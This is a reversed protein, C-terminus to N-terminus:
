PGRELIAGRDPIPVLALKARELGACLWPALPSTPDDLETLAAALHDELELGGRKKELAERIGAGLLSRLTLGSTQRELEALQEWLERRYFERVEDFEQHLVNRPDVPLEALKGPPRAKVGGLELRTRLWEAREAVSARLLRRAESESLTVYHRRDDISM